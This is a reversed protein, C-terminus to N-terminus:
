EDEPVVEVCNVHSCFHWFNWSCVGDVCAQEQWGLALEPSAGFHEFVSLATKVGLERLLIGTDGGAIGRESFKCSGVFAEFTEPTLRALASKKDRARLTRLDDANRAIWDADSQMLKRFAEDTTALRSRDIETLPM